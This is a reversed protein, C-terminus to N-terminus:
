MTNGSGITNDASSTAPASTTEAALEGTEMIGLEGSGNGNGWNGNGNGWNNNGDGWPRNGNNNGWPRVPQRRRKRERRRWPSQGLERRWAWPGNGGGGASQRRGRAMAAPEGGMAALGIGAVLWGRGRAM